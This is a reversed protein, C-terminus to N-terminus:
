KAREIDRMLAELEAGYSEKLVTDTEIAARADEALTRARRADGLQLKVKSLHIQAAARDSVSTAAKLARELTQDAKALQNTETYLVGLTDLIAPNEPDRAAAREAYPVAEAARGLHKALTFALNNNFEADEPSLRLAQKYEEASRAFDGTVYYLGARSRRLDLASLMDTTPDISSELGSLLELAEPWRQPVQSLHRALLVKLYPPMDKAPQVTEMFRSIAIPDSRLVLDVQGVWARATEPSQSAQEYIGALRRLGDEPRGRATDIRARFAEVMMRNERQQDASLSNIAREAEDVQPPALRLLADVRRGLLEPAQLKAYGQEYFGAAQRFDQTRAMVDGAFVFWAPESESRQAVAQRAANKAEEPRGLRIMDMITQFRLEDNNPNFKIIENLQGIAESVRGDRYYLDALMTRPMPMTPRLKIAQDLDRVVAQMQSSDGMSLQARRVFPLPDTPAISVAEDVLRRALAGDGKGVAADVRLLLTQLDRGQAKEIAEAGAMADDWRGMRLLAEIRRKAVILDRDAGGDIVRKYVEAARENDGTAFLVDGIRRDAEMLEKSQVARAAELTAVAEARAGLNAYYDAKALSATLREPQTTLTAIYDDWAKAGGAIDGQAGALRARLSVTVLADPGQTPLLAIAQEAGKYNGVSLMLRSLATTNEIDTPDISFRRERASLAAQKDGFQEELDLWASLLSPENPNLSKARRALELADDARRLEVLAGILPRVMTPDTPRIEVARRLAELGPEILGKGIRAQGLLRWAPASFQNRATARELTTIAADYKKESLELRAKYLEGGLQDINKQAALAAQARADDFRSEELADVFKVEIIRPDAPDLREARALTEAAEQPMRNTRQLYFIQLLKDMEPINSGEIFRIRVIVPDPIDLQLSALRIEDNAPFKERAAAVVRRAEDIKGQQTLLSLKETVPRPDDPNEAILKDLIEASRAFNSPQMLRWRRAELLARVIPDRIETSDRDEMVTKIVDIWQKIRPNDPDIANLAKIREYAKTINQLRMELETAEIQAMYNTPDVALIRDYQQLAAGVSGERELAKGLMFLVGVDQAGTRTNLESLLRVADANRQESVAMMADVRLLMIDDASVRKALEERHARIRSLMAPRQDEPTKNWMQIAQDVQAAVATVRQSRLVIGEISVPLNPMEVIKQYQSIADEHRGASGLAEARLLLLMPDNPRAESMREIIALWLEAGDDRRATMLNRQLRTLFPRDLSETPMTTVADVIPDLRQGAERLAAEKTALTLATQLKEDAEMEWLRMMPRANGPNAAILRRLMEKSAAWRRAHEEVRGARKARDAESYELEVLGLQSEMDSPDVEIAARLDAEIDRKVQENPEVTRAEYLRALGRYRRLRETEPADPALGELARGARVALESWETAGVGFLRGQNFMTALYDEQATPDSSQVVALQQLIGMYHKSYADRYSTESEPAQQILVDRWKKLWRVNTRDESVAKSYSEAAGAIDGKALLADGKKEHDDGSQSMVKYALVGVGTAAALLVVGLIAVFKIDVKGAM